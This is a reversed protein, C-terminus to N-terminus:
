RSRRPRRMLLAAAGTAVGMTLVALWPKSTALVAVRGFPIPAHACGALADANALNRVTHKANTPKLQLSEM